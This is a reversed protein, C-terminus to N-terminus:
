SMTDASLGAMSTFSDMVSSPADAIHVRNRGARKAQYLGADAREILSAPGGGPNRPYDTAVGVSVTVVGRPSGPNSIQLAEIAARVREGLWAAGAPETNPLLLVFEEGGLRAAMDVPRRAVGSLTQAVLRLCEDGATHGFCDNFGKFQDVDIMLLSVPLMEREARRWEVAFNAEFARRNALQTLPDTLSLHELHQNVRSVRGFLRMSEFLLAIFVTVNSLLSMVRGLYWGFTFPLDGMLGLSMDLSAAVLAVALWLAVTSRARLRTVVLILAILNCAMAVPAIWPPSPRTGGPTLMGYAIGLAAVAVVITLAITVTAFRVLARPLRAREPEAAIAFAAVFGAFGTHWVGQMWRAGEDTGILVGDGFVGRASMMHPIILLFSFCYAAALCMDARSNASRAQGALLIATFLDAFHTLSGFAPTLGNAEPLQSNGFPIAALAAALAVATILGAGSLQM